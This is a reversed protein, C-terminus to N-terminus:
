QLQGIWKHYLTGRHIDILENPNVTAKPKEVGIDFGGLVYQWAEQPFIDMTKFNEVPVDKYFDWYENSRQSYKYHAAIFNVISDFSDNVGNNYQEESIKGDIYSCLKDLQSVILYIGTSELPEIFASALGIPVVNNELHTINRGTIMPITYIPPSLPIDSSFIIIEIHRGFTVRIPSQTNPYAPENPM